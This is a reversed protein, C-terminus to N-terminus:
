KTNRNKLKKTTELMANKSSKMIGLIHYNDIMYAAFIDGAGNVELNQLPTNKARYISSSNIIIEIGFEDHFVIPTEININKYLYKRERSDLIFKTRKMIDLFQTRPKNTCFDLSHPINILSLKEFCEVDDVYCIHLWDFNKNINEILDQKMKSDESKLVFSTRQSTKTESIIYADKLGSTWLYPVWNKFVMDNFNYIGGKRKFLKRCENTEGATTKDLIIITDNYTKGYLFLNNM